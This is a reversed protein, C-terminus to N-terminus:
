VSTPEFIQEETVKKHKNKSKKRMVVAAVAICSIFVAATVILAVASQSLQEDKEEELSLHIREQRRGEKGDNLVCDAHGRWDKPVTVTINSSSTFTHDGNPVVDTPQDHVIAADSSFDWTITPAPKGIASCKFVVERRNEELRSGVAHSTNVHSIGTVKLCTQRRKSGDPYVNFSCIYCSEDAWSVEKLSISTSSLSAETFIVKRKYPDNVQQGFRKSYTALNEISEDAYLRQWTVQLVGTPNDVACWYHADGGFLATTNGYGRLQSGSAGHLLSVAVLIWLM